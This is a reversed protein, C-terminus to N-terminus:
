LNLALENWAQEAPCGEARLRRLLGSEYVRRGIELSEPAIRRMEAFVPDARVGFFPTAFDVFAAMVALELDRREPGFMRVPKRSLYPTTGLL